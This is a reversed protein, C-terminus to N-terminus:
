KCSTGSTMGSTSQASNLVYDYYFVTYSTYNPATGCPLYATASTGNDKNLANAASVLTIGTNNLSSEALSNFDSASPYKSRAASYAEARMSVARANSAAKTTKANNAVDGTPRLGSSGQIIQSSTAASSLQKNLDNVQSQLKINQQQLENVKQHQWFYVAVGTTALLFLVIIFMLFRILWRRPRRENIIKPSAAFPQTAPEQNIPTTNPNLQSPTEHLPTDNM